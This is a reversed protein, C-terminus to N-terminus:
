NFKSMARMFDFKLIVKLAEVGKEVAARLLDKEEDVPKGLVYDVANDFPPEGIGIRLRKIQDTGLHDIIDQM